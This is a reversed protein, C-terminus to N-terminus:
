TYQGCVNTVAHSASMAFVEPHPTSSDFFREGSRLDEHRVSIGLESRPAPERQSPADDIITPRDAPGGLPELYRRTGRSPPYRPVPQETFRAHDIPGTPRMRRRPTGRRLDLPADDLNPHDPPPPRRADPEQEPQVGRRHMPHQGPEPQRPQAPQIASGAPLHAAVLMGRRTLQHVHVDLFQAADWVPAAMPHGAPRDPLAVSGGRGAGVTVPVAFGPQAVGVQVVSDIIM